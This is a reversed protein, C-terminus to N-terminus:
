CVVVSTSLDSRHADGTVARRNGSRDSGAENSGASGIRAVGM